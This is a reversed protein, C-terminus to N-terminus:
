QVIVKSEVEFRKYDYYRYRSEGRGRIFAIFKVDYRMIFSQAVWAEGVKMYNSEFECGPQFGNTPRIFVDLRKIEVGEEQDFWTVRRTGLADSEEKNAPKYGAKPQSEVRWAKRGAITEEGALKNDFLKELQDLDGLTVEKTFHGSHQKKRQIREHELDEDVKKQIKVDLPHGDILMLKRYPEGELMIVDFTKSGSPKLDGKKDRQFDNKEEKYTFKWGKDEQTKKAAAANRILEEASPTALSLALLLLLM